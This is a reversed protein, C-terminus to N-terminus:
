QFYKRKIEVYASFKIFIIDFICLIYTMNIWQYDAFYTKPMHKSYILTYIM